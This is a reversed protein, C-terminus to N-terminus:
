GNIIPQKEAYDSPTIPASKDKKTMSKKAVEDADAKKREVTIYGNKKHFQFSENTELIALEEESITTMAGQPTIFNKNMLGSGGKVLISTEVIPIDGGGKTFTRYQNDCTLTSFIYVSM